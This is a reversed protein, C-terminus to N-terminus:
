KKQKNDLIKRAGIVGAGLGVGTLLATGLTSLIPNKQTKLHLKIAMIRELADPSDSHYIEEAVELASQWEHYIRKLRDKKQGTTKSMNSYAINTEHKVLELAEKAGIPNRIIKVNRLM